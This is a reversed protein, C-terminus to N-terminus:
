SALKFKIGPKFKAAASHETAAGNQTPDVEMDADWGGADGNAGAQADVPADM